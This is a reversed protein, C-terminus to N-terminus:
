RFTLVPGLFAAVTAMPTEFVPGVDDIVYRPRRLPVDVYASARIGLSETVNWTGLLSAEPAVDSRVADDIRRVGFARASTRRVSAGGCVGVHLRGFAPLFCARASAALLSFEGGARDTVSARQQSLWTGGAEFRWADVSVAVVIEAGPAASPLANMSVGAGLSAHVAIGDSATADRATADRPPAAAPAHAIPSSTAPRGAPETNPSSSPPATTPASPEAHIADDRAVLALILAAADAVDQCDDSEFRRTSPEGHAPFVHLEAVFSKKKTVVVDAKPEEADPPAQARFRARLEDSSPCSAPAQWTIEARAGRPLLMAGAAVCGLALDSPRM